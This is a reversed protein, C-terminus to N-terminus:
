KCKQMNEYHARKDMEQKWIALTKLIILDRAAGGVLLHHREQQLEYGQKWAGASSIVNRRFREQCPVSPPCSEVVTCSDCLLTSHPSCTNCGTLPSRCSQCTSPASFKDHRYRCQKELCYDEMQYPRSARRRDYDGYVKKVGACKDALNYFLENSSIKTGKERDDVVKETQTAELKDLAQRLM